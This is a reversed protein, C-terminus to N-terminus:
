FSFNLKTDKLFPLASDRPSLIAKSPDIKWDIGLDPDNYAVGGEASPTYKNDCKYFVVATESLVSFGHAFGKPIYLQKKNDASLEIGFCRGFTPSGNRVDLVVDFIEGELARILKTQAYPELQFHMGRITGYSSKSQNDQIFYTKIGHKTFSEQNYSEFFYGRKDEFVKPEIIFLGPFETKIINM